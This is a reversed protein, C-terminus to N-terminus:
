KGTLANWATINGDDDGVFILFLKLSFTIVKSKNKGELTANM